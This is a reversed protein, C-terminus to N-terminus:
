FLDLNVIVFYSEKNMFYKLKHGTEDINFDTM